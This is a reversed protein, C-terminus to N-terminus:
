ATALWSFAVTTNSWVSVTATSMTFHCHWAWACCRGQKATSSKAVPTSTDSNTAAANRPTPIYLHDGKHLQYGPLKMEPNANILQDVTIGHYHAIGYLTDSKKVKYIHNTTDQACAPVAVVFFLCLLLLWWRSARGMFRQIM